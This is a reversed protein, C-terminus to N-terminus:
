GNSVYAVHLSLEYNGITLTFKREVYFYINIRFHDSVSELEDLNFGGYTKDYPKGYFDFYIEKAHHVISNDKTRESKGM